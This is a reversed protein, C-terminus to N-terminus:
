QLTGCSVDEAKGCGSHSVTQDSECNGSLELEEFVHDRKKLCHAYLIYVYIIYPRCCSLYM